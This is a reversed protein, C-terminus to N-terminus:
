SRRPLAKATADLHRLVGETLEPAHTLPLLHNAGDVIQLTVQPLMGLLAAIIRRAPLTSRTGQVLLTPVSIGRIAEAGPDPAFSAEFDLRLKEVCRLVEDRSREPMADWSGSGIWYGLFVRLAAVGFGMDLEDLFSKRIGLIEAYAESEHAYPLLFFAVPEILTLSALGPPNTLALGLAVVGGFSHGIVHCRSGDGPLLRCALEVECDLSYQTQRPWPRTKGYGILDPVVVRYGRKVFPDVYRRWVASNSASGHLLLLTEGEGSETHSLQFEPRNEQTVTDARIQSPM